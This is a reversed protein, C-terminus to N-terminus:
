GCLLFWLLALALLHEEQLATQVAFYNHKHGNWQQQLCRTAPAAGGAGGGALPPLGHKAVALQSAVCWGCMLSFLLALALLHEEQLAIPFCAM